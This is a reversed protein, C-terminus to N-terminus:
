KTTKSAKYLQEVLQQKMLNIWHPVKRHISSGSQNLNISTPVDPILKGNEIRYCVCLYHKRVSLGARVWKEADNRGEMRWQGKWYNRTLGNHSLEVSQEVADLAAKDSVGPPIDIAEVGPIRNLPTGDPAYVPQSTECGVLAVLAVGAMLLKNM